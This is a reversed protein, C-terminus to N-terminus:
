HIIPPIYSLTHVLITERGGNAGDPDRVDLDQVVISSARRVSRSLIRMTATLTQNHLYVCLSRFALVFFHRRTWPYLARATLHVESASYLSFIVWLGSWRLIFSSPLQQYLFDKNLFHRSHLLWISNYKRAYPRAQAQTNQM